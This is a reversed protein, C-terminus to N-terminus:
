IEIETKQKHIEKNQYQDVKNQNSIDMSQHFNLIAIHLNM